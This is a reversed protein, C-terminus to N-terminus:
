PSKLVLMDFWFEFVCNYLFSLIRVQVIELASDCFMLTSLFIVCLMCKILVFWVFMMADLSLILCPYLEWYCIDKYLKLIPPHFSCVQNALLLAEVFFLTLEVVLIFCVWIYWLSSEFIWHLVTFEWDFFCVSSSTHVLIAVKLTCGLSAVTVANSIITPAALFELKLHDRWQQLEVSISGLFELDM